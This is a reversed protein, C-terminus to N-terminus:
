EDEYEGLSVPGPAVAGDDRKIRCNCGSMCATEGERPRTPLEDKDFPSM